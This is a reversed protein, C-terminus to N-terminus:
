VSKVTGPLGWGTLSADTMVVKRLSVAALMTGSGLFSRDRWHCLTHVCLSIVMVKSNLHCKPVLEAGCGLVSVGENAAAGYSYGLCNLSDTGAPTFM